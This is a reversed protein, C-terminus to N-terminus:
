NKFLISYSIDHFYTTRKSERNPNECYGKMYENIDHDFSWEGKVGQLDIVVVGKISWQSM